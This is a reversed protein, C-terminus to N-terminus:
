NNNSADGVGGFSPSNFSHKKFFNNLVKFIKGLNGRSPNLPSKVNQSSTAEEQKKIVL